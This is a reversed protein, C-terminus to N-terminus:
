TGIGIVTCPYGAYGSTSTPTFNATTYSTFLAENAGLAGASILAGDITTFSLPWANATGDATTSKWQILKGGVQLYGTGSTVNTVSLVGNSDITVGTGQKVGGLVSSTAKPLTYIHDDVYKKTSSHLDLTPAGALVLNGMMTGGAIPLGGLAVIASAAASAGTGGASIPLVGYSPNNGAGRTCLALGSTSAGLVVWASGDYYLIDGQTASGPFGTAAAAWVPNASAGQTKLFQGSTGPALVVWASGNYYLINGQVASPMPTVAAILGNLYSAKLDFQQFLWNFDGITPPNPGLFALGQIYEPDTLPTTVGGSAFINTFNPATM